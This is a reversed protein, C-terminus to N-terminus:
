KYSMTLNSSSDAPWIRNYEVLTQNVYYDNLSRKLEETISIMSKDKILNFQEGDNKSIDFLYEKNSGMSKAYKYPYKVSSLYLGDYPQSLLVPKRDNPSFISEGIFHNETDIDLLDMLTPAIDIHSYAVDKILQPKIHDKWVIALPTRFNEEYFGYQNYTSYDGRPFSHDGTVVVITNELIKRKELLDFLGKLFLDTLHMSNTLNKRHESNKSDPYVLKKDEPLHNFKMHNSVTILSLLFPKRISDGSAEHVSDIIKFCEKYYIDDQLGWGWIYKKDIDATREPTMSTVHEFGIHEMFPGNNDFSLSKFAKIFFTSYNEDRLIRPISKLNLDSHEVMIKNRYSPLIGGYISLLGRSTQISNGYYNEVMLGKHKLSNIFPTIEVGEPTFENVMLGNFSELAVIIVNPKASDSNEWYDPLSKKVYPYEITLTKKVREIDKKGKQYIKASNIFDSLEDANIPIFLVLLLYVGSKIFFHRKKRNGIIKPSFLGFLFQFLISAGFFIYVTNKIAPSLNDGAVTMSESYFILDLNTILLAFDLSTSQAYHYTSLFSYIFAILISLFIRLPKPSISMIIDVCLYTTITTTLIIFLFEALSSAAAISFKMVVIIQFLLIFRALPYITISFKHVKFHSINSFKKLFLATEVWFWRFSFGVTHLYGLGNIEKKFFDDRKLYINLISIPIILIVLFRTPENIFFDREYLPILSLFLVLLPRSLDMLVKVSAEGRKFISILPSFIVTILFGAPITLSVVLIFRAAIHDYVDREYMWKAQTFLLLAFISSLFITFSNLKKM